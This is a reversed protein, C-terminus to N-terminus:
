TFVELEFGANVNVMSARFSKLDLMSILFENLFKSQNHHKCFIVTQFATWDIVYHILPMAQPLLMLLGYLSKLLYFNNQTDLLQLRLDVFFLLM